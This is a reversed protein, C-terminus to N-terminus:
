NILLDEAPYRYKLNDTRKIFAMMFTIIGVRGLFMTIVIIIKSANTLDGTINRSLGVTGYASVVEFVISLLKKDPDFLYVGFSSVFIVLLSFLIIAFSKNISTQAIERGFVELSKKGKAISIVNMFAVAITSTKIGGGTSAPSAGIWMLLIFILTTPITMASTDVSNFGATRTTVSGFFSVVLKGFFGPHETLTNKYEFIMFLVTGSALLIATTTIIVKSSLNLVGPSYIKQKKHFLRRFSNQIKYAFFKWINFIIPFGLGGMIILLAIVTQFFYNYRFTFEFLNNKLPSFGANCFASVAHFVSFYIRNGIKPMLGSDISCFLFVAGITEISFTVLLIKKLVNFVDDLKDVNTLEGMYMQSEYSSSSRFFYSFYSAFTMVGLGGIQILFMIITQGIQTFVGGTDVSILGTVCVASTATFLADIYSIEGRTSNPFMLLLSGMLIIIFFSGVFLQAPNIVKYKFRFNINYIERIFIMFLAVYTGINHLSLIGYIFVSILNFFLIFILFLSLTIDISVIKKLM